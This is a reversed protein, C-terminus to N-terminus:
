RVKALIHLLHRRTRPLNPHLRLAAQVLAQPTEAHFWGVALLGPAADFSRVIRLVASARAYTSGGIHDAAARLLADRHARREAAALTELVRTLAWRGLDCPLHGTAIAVRLRAIQEADTM